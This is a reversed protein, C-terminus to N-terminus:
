SGDSELLGVEGLMDRARGLKGAARRLGERFGPSKEELKELNSLGAYHVSPAGASIAGTVNALVSIGWAARDIIERAAGGCEETLIQMKRRKVPLSTLEGNIQERRKGWDGPGLAEDFKRIEADLSMMGRCAEDYELRNDPQLFEGHASLTQLLPDLERPFVTNAFTLLFGLSDAGQVAIGEPHDPSAANELSLPPTDSFFDRYTQRLERRRRESFFLFVRDDVDKRWRDRYMMFWDEGGTM